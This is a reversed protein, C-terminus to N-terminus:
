PAEQRVAPCQWDGPPRPCVESFCYAPVYSALANNIDEIEGFDAIQFELLTFRKITGTERVKDGAFSRVNVLGSLAELQAKTLPDNDFMKTQHICCRFLITM